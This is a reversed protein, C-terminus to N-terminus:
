VEPNSPPTPNNGVDPTLTDTRDKLILIADEADEAM